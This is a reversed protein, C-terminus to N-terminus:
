VSFQKIVAADMTYPDRATIFQLKNNRIRFGYVFVHKSADVASPSLVKKANRGNIDITYIADATNYYLKGNHYALSPAIGTWYTGEDYGYATWMTKIRAVQQTGKGFKFRKINVYTGDGPETYYWQGSVYVFASTYKVDDRWFVDDFNTKDAKPLDRDYVYWEKHDNALMAEDSMLFYKHSVKGFRDATPDNWTVDVHYWSSGLKILNWAHDGGGAVGAVVRSEIGIQELLYDYAQAYGQCMAKRTVLAHYADNHLYHSDYGSDALQLKETDYETNLVLYDNLALAKETKSMGDDLIDLAADVAADFQKAKEAYENKTMLYPIESLSTPIGTESDYYYYTTGSLDVFFLDANEYLINWYEDMLEDIDWGNKKTYSEVDIDTKFSKLQKVMYEEFSDTGAAAATFPLM